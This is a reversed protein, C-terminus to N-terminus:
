AATELETDRKTPSTVTIYRGWIHRASHILYRLADCEHDNVKLPKDEGKESASPDWTYDPLYTLLETCDESIFLRDADLLAAVSQIGPLVENKAKAATIGDDFLAKRFSLAAPDVYLWEPQIAGIWDRYLGVQKADSLGVPPAWEKTIFVAYGDGSPHPGITGVYGRTANTTGHDCGVGFVRDPAPIADAPLVHRALSFSPYVAGTAVTWLGRVFRDYYVGEHEKEIQEIYSLNNEVLWTNDRIGWTWHRYGLHKSCTSPCADTCDGAKDIVERKVWHKPGDPNTTAFLQAGPASMRNLLQKWFDYDVLTLEDVYALVVTRGRLRKEARRDGSGIVEVVRGLILATPAGTTYSVQSAFEGFITEDMLPEFVNGAIAERTQGTVIIRGGRPAKAVAILFRLLSSITKGSRVPGHWLNVRATAEAVSRFQHPSLGAHKSM